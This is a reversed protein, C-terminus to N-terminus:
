AVLVEVGSPDVGFNSSGAEVLEGDVNWSEVGALEIEVQTCRHKSVGTQDGIGGRRLGYAHKVLRLRSAAEIVVLDLKSDSLDTEISAGGGFAGSCAVTVQWADGSHIEEGDCRVTCSVPDAGVGARVAGVAYALPGLVGKLGDAHQAAAPSLGISAVNLFPRDGMRAVDLRRSQTGQAALECAEDLDLPIELERALDNATGTPIVAVGLGARAAPAAVSALSGDGGAVVVRDPESAIAEVTEDLSFERVELGHRRLCDAVTEADGSGSDPNALLAVKPM